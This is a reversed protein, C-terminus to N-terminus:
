VWLIFLWLFIWLENRNRDFIVIRIGIMHLAFLIDSIAPPSGDRISIFHRSKPRSPIFPNSSIPIRENGM